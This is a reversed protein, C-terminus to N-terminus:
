KAMRKRLPAIYKVWPGDLIIKLLLLSIIYPFFAKLWYNNKNFYKWFLIRMEKPSLCDNIGMEETVFKSQTKTITKTPGTSFLNYTKIGLDFDRFCATKGINVDKEGKNIIVPAEGTLFFPIKLDIAYFTYSGVENSTAYKHSSLIDYFNKVFDLSNGLKPGATVVQFDM